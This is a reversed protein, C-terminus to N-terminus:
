KIKIGCKPCANCNESINLNCNPCKNKILISGDPKTGEINMIQNFKNQNKNKIYSLILIVLGALLIIFSLFFFTMMTTEHKNFPSIYSNYPDNTINLFTSISGIGGLFTMLIGVMINM